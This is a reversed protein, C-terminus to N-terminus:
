RSPSRCSGPLAISGKCIRYIDLVHFPNGRGFAHLYRESDEMGILGEIFSLTDALLPDFGDFIMMPPPRGGERKRLERTTLKPFYAIASPINFIVEEIGEGGMPSEIMAKFM